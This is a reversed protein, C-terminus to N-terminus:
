VKALEQIKELSLNTCRAIQEVSLGENLLNKAPGIKTQEAGEIKVEEWGQNKERETLEWEQLNVMMYEGKFREDYKLKEVQQNIENTFDNTSNRNILYELISKIELNNEKKYDSANIIIKTSNDELTFDKKEQCTNKFTYVPLSFGFPDFTCIFIIYSEKLETYVAGRQLCDMDLISQYYRLRKGISEPIYTQIEIDFVRNCDEVYVDLRIGKAEYFPSLNKQIEPYEIKSINIGLLRELLGKCISKNKMVKTFMFDDTFTLDEVPKFSM